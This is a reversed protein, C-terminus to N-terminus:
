RVRQELKLLARARAHVNDVTFDYERMVVDGPASAGFRDIGIVDGQDTVYERWGQPSGAEVALRVRVTPPLVHDRYEPPQEDFLRWSPMSVVRTSIGEQLLRKRAEVVLSVESGTGILILEPRGDPADALIYAGRRLGEASAYETRDLIPVSQRTLVLAVPRDRTEVAV